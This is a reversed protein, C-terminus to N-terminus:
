DRSMVIAISLIGNLAILSIIRGNSIQAAFFSFFLGYVNLLRKDTVGSGLMM